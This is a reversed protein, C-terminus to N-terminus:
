AFRRMLFCVSALVALTAAVGGASVIGFAGSGAFIILLV